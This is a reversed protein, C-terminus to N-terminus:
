RKDNHRTIGVKPSEDLAQRFSVEKNHVFVLLASRRDFGCECLVTDIITGNVIEAGSGGLVHLSSDEKGLKFLMEGGEIPFARQFERLSDIFGCSNGSGLLFHLVEAIPINLGQPELQVGLSLKHDLYLFLSFPRNAGDKKFQGGFLLCYFHVWGAIFSACTVTISFIGIQLCHIQM